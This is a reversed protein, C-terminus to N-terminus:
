IGDCLINYCEHCINEESDIGQIDQTYPNISTDVDYRLGNCIECRIRRKGPIKKQDSM